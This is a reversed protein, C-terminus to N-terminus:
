GGTQSMFRIIKTPAEKFEHREPKLAIGERITQELDADSIGARLLPRLSLKEEQGLCLYLTGDVALRVRNCTECFHQSMPTIVGIQGRGDKTRWYRAPGGGMEKIEPILDFRDRLTDVIPGLPTFGSALGTAGMPMTEIMRLIFGRNICFATMAEVEHDNVGPMVVMNLKIPTFGAVQAAHLGAMVADLTDRGTIHTVCERTLSDLSVNLRKVGAARLAEAYKPLQTGNTSLSLDRIGPLANLRAALLPLHRRLLPEGGTLRVRSTGLRAFAGIVREIEDFTLWDAPEQYGKFSKPLCYSCKMDCRDTVSLRVYEINRGFRDALPTQTQRMTHNDTKKISKVVLIM